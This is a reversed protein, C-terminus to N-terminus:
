VSRRAPEANATSATVLLSWRPHNKQFRSRSQVAAADPTAWRSLGRGDELRFEFQSVVRFRFRHFPARNSDLRKKPSVTEREPFIAATRLHAFRLTGAM